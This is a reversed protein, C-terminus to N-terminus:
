AVSGPPLKDDLISWIRQLAEAARPTEKAFAQHWEKPSKMATAQPQAPTVGAAAVTRRAEKAVQPVPEDSMGDVVLNEIAAPKAKSAKQASETSVKSPAEPYSVSGISGNSRVKPEDGM